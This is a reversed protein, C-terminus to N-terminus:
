CYGRRGRRRYRRGQRGQGKHVQALFDAFVHSWSMKHAGGVAVMFTELTKKLEKPFDEYKIMRTVFLKKVIDASIKALKDPAEGAAILQARVSCVSNEVMKKIIKKAEHHRALPGRPIQEPHHGKQSGIQAM